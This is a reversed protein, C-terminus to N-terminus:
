ITELILLTPNVYPASREVTGSEHLDIGLNATM